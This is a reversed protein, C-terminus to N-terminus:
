VDGNLCPPSFKRTLHDVCYWHTCPLQAADAKDTNELCVACEVERARRAEREAEERAAALAAAHARREAHIRDTRERAANRVERIRELHQHSEELRRSANTQIKEQWLLQARRASAARDNAQAQYRRYVDTDNRVPMKTAATPQSKQHSQHRGSSREDAAQGFICEAAIKPSVRSNFERYNFGNTQGSPGDKTAEVQTFSGLLEELITLKAEHLQTKRLEVLTAAQKGNRHLGNLRTEEESVLRSQISLLAEQLVSWSQTSTMKRCNFCLSSDLSCKDHRLQPFTSLKPTLTVVVLLCIVSHCIDATKAGRRWQFLDHRM